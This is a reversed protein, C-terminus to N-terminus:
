GGSIDGKLLSKEVQDLRESLQRQKRWGSAIFALLIMWFLVYAAVLMAGASTTEGGGTTPVFESPSQVSTATEQRSM